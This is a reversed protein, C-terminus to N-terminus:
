VKPNPTTWRDAGDVFEVVYDQFVAPYLARVQRGVESFVLRIEEEAASDTRRELVHRLTRLNVTWGITTALGIPALRRLASTWKKKLHFSKEEDLNLVKAAAAYGAECFRWTRDMIGQVTKNSAVLNPVWVRLDDLRVYRLSEQSIAVGVRHRVLEHTFVRSVNHFIFTVNVHELVSGHQQKLLNGIYEMNGERVKTVNANLGPAFSRYCLRGMVEILAEGDSAADTKWDQAGVAGLYAQLQRDEHPHEGDFLNAFQTTALLFVKPEVIKM